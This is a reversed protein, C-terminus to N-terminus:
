ISVKWMKNSCLCSNLCRYDLQGANEDLFKAIEELNGDTENMGTILLQAFASPDLKQKEDRKRTRFKEGALTPRDKTGTAMIILVKM